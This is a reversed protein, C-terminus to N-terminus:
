RTFTNDPLGVNLRLNVYSYIELVEGPDGTQRPWDYNEIRIPVRLENDFYVVSRYYEYDKSPAGPHVTDIRTCRRKAFEFQGIQVKTGNLKKEIEWGKSLRDILNALGAETISHRSAAVVRPDNLELSVFGVLGLAGASKVRLKGDNRGAVYCVEQGALNKPEQWKMNVSFPQGRVKLAIINDPGVMDGIKERKIMVCSYDQVEAFAKVALGVFRLPEDMASAAPAGTTAVVAPRRPDAPPQSLAEPAVCALAATAALGLLGLWLGCWLRRNSWALSCRSSGAPPIHSM